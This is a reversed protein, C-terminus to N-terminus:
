YDSRYQFSDIYQDGVIRELRLRMAAQSANCPTSAIVAGDYIACYVINVKNM